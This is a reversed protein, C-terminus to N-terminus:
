EREERYILSFRDIASEVGSVLFFRGSLATEDTAAGSEYATLLATLANGGLTRVDTDAARYAGRVVHIEGYALPVRPEDYANPTWVIDSFGGGYRIGSPRAGAGVTVSVADTWDGCQRNCARGSYAHAGQAAVLSARTDWGGSYVVKGAKGIEYRLAGSSRDWVFDVTGTLEDYSAQVNAPPHPPLDDAASQQAFASALCLIWPLARALLAGLAIRHRGNSPPM